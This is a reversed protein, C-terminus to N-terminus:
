CNIVIYLERVKMLCSVVIKSSDTMMTYLGYLATHGPSSFRGDGNVMLQKGECEKYLQEM